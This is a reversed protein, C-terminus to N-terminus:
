ILIKQIGGQAGQGNVTCQLSCDPEMEKECEGETFICM